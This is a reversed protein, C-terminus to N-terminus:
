HFYRKQLGSMKYKYKGFSIQKSLTKRAEDEVLESDVEEEENSSEGERDDDVSKNTNAKM